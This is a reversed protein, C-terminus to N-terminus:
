DSNGPLRFVFAKGRSDPNWGATMAQRVSTEIAKESVQPRQPFQPIMDRYGCRKNPFPYELILERHREDESRV